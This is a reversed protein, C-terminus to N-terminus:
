LHKFHFVTDPSRNIKLVDLNLTLVPLQFTKLLNHQKMQDDITELRFHKILPHNKLIVTYLHKYYFHFKLSGNEIILDM